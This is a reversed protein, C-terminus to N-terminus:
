QQLEEMTNKQSDFGVIESRLIPVIRVLEVNLKYM